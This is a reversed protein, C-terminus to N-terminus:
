ALLIFCQFSRWQRWPVWMRTIELTGGPFRKCEHGFWLGLLMGETRAGSIGEPFHHEARSAVNGLPYHFGPSGESSRCRCLPDWLCSWSSSSPSNVGLLSPFCWYTFRKWPAPPLCSGQATEWPPVHVTAAGQVSPSVPATKLHFFM